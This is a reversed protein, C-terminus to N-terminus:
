ITNDLLDIQEKFYKELKEKDIPHDKITMYSLRDVEEITVSDFLEARLSAKATVHTDIEFHCSPCIACVNFENWRTTHRLRGNFHACQLGTIGKFAHCKQCYGGAKLRVYKSFLIDLKSLKM